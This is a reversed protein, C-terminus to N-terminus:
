ICQHFSTKPHDFSCHHTWLKRWQEDNIFMKEVDWGHCRCTSLNKKNSELNGWKPLVTRTRQVIIIRIQHSNSIILLYLRSWRGNERVRSGKGWPIDMALLKNPVGRLRYINSVRLIWNILRPSVGPLTSDECAVEWFLSSRSFKNWKQEKVIKFYSHFDPHRVPDQRPSLEPLLRVHASQGILPHDHAECTTHTTCTEQPCVLM